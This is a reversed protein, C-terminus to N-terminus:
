LQLKAMFDSTVVKHRKVFISIITATTIIIIIVGGLLLTFGHTPVVLLMYWINRVVKRNVTIDDAKM